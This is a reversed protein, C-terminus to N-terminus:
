PSERLHTLPTELNALTFDSASLLAQFADMAYRNEVKKGYSEGFHTDGLFLITTDKDTSDQVRAAGCVSLLLLAAILLGWAAILSRASICGLTM